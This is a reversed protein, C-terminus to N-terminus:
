VPQFGMPRPYLSVANSKMRWATIMGFLGVLIGYGAVGSSEHAHDTWFHAPQVNLDFPAGPWAIRYSHVNHKQDLMWAVSSGLLGLNAISLASLVLSSAFVPWFLRASPQDSPMPSTSPTREFYKTVGM